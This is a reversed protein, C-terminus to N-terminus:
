SHVIDTTHRGGARDHFVIRRAARWRQEDMQCYFAITERSGITQDAPPMLTRVRYTGAPGILDFHAPVVVPRDGLNTILIELNQDFARTGCCTKFNLIDEVPSNMIPKIELM